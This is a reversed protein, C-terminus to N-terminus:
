SNLTREVARVCFRRRAYDTNMVRMDPDDVGLKTQIAEDIFSAALATQSANWVNKIRSACSKDWVSCLGLDNSVHLNEREDEDFIAFDRWHHKM